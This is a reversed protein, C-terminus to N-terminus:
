VPMLMYLGSMVSLATGVLSATRSIGETQPHVTHISRDNEKQCASCKWLIAENCSPCYEAATM